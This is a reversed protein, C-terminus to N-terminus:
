RGNELGAAVTRGDPAIAVVSIAADLDKTWIVKGAADGLCLTQGAFLMDTFAAAFLGGSRALAVSLYSVRREPLFRSKRGERFLYLDNDTVAIMTPADATVRMQRVTEVTVSGLSSTGGNPDSQLIQYKRGELDDPRVLVVRSDDALADPSVPLLGRLRSHWRWDVDM